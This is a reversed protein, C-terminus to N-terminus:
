RLREVLTEMLRPVYEKFRADPADGTRPLARIQAAAPRAREGLAELVGAAALATFYENRSGDAQQVLRPLVEALDAADGHRGLAEAAVIRVDSCGDELAALLEEHCAAVAQPGRMKVGLVAWYRVVSEQDHLAARLVPLGEARMGSALEAMDYIRDMAPAGAARLFDYPSRGGCRRHLEGEPWLGADRVALCQDRLVSRFRLLRNQQARDAVLNNVEEHDRDLDYLEEAPKVQWFRSQVPNLEGANFMREWVQTTPTQWMYNLHQGYIRDPRFNRVYVYRGDTVSRVSDVVEDMRGRYGFLYSPAGSVHAGLFARGQMWGPAPVGALSLLTPAFDVFSVLRDSMGGAHYDAPRLEKFKEPVYVALPVQLGRNYPWRKNGPMGSGHDAYYFVVTDEALGAEQLERLRVGADADAESVADYYQAWDQRVEPTDPHYAPVDVKAPDHVQVHPRVRIKSEHSKESNFVALFPKGAPRNRWHAKKSSEDWLAGKTQTLNYDEKANNTCYYGAGRMLEPYMQKGEPFRVMSRMHEGGTSNAYLGAILTTRAPACVPANSWCRRYRVGAKALADFVPTTAYRDGYAGMHPGHDENVLWLINPRASEAADASEPAFPFLGCLVFAGVWRTWRTWRPWRMRAVNRATGPTMTDDM